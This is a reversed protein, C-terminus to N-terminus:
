TVSKDKKTSSLKERIICDTRDRTHGSLWMHIVVGQEAKIHQWRCFKSAVAYNLNIFLLWGPQTWYTVLM